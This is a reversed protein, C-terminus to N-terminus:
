AKGLFVTGNTVHVDVTPLPTSAPGNQVAGDLGFVSGHCPCSLKGTGANVTCGQHTCVASVATVVGSTAQVLM